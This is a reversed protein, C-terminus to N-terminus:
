KRKFILVEDQNFRTEWDPSKLLEGVKKNYDDERLPYNNGDNLLVIYEANGIFPFLYISDRFALHPVLTNKASVQADPPILKLADHVKGANFSNIYHSKEYFVVQDKVYWIAHRNDIIVKTALSCILTFILAIRVKKENSYYNDIWDFLAITLIPVFEISYQVSVGWKGIDNSFMKQAYIPILMLLYKPKFLLAIGGSLLVMLHTDFKNYDGLPENLHNIFLIKFCYWPRTIMTHFAETFNNGLSQYHFHIYGRGANSLHPIIVNVAVFFYVTAFVIASALMIRLKKNKHYILIAGIAIFLAWFAMNEKSICILIFFLSAIWAKEKELFLFFWPVLMAALVNDHYDFGLASFIGWMSLFHIMGILAFNTNAYRQKLLFYIGIGGAIIGLIQIILLTYTDFIWYFPGWLPQLLTLHDSFMNDFRPQMVTCDAMQFHAYDFLAHNYIGLDYVYTRFHYHNVIAILSYIIGFPICVFLIRRLDKKM